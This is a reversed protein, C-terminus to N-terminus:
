STKYKFEVYREKPCEILQLPRSVKKQVYQLLQQQQKYVNRQHVNIKQLDQNVEDLGMLLLQM